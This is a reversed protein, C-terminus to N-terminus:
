EGKQGMTLAGLGNRLGHTVRALQDVAERPLLRVAAKRAKAWVPVNDALAKGAPVHCARIAEPLSDALSRHAYVFTNHRYWLYVARDHTLRPRLFDFIEYDRVAFKQRWHQWPQENVHNEGGQGPTAASFLVLGGHRTLNDIFTEAASEPLHEAVELSEVLDFRRDLRLPRALDHAMFAPPPIRLKARDVYPGDIGQVETAGRQLWGALWVGRGCGLDLVSRIPMVDALHGIVHDASIAATRDATDFFRSDYAYLLDARPRHRDSPRAATSTRTM